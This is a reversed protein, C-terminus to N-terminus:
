ERLEYREGIERECLVFYVHGRLYLKKKELVSCLMCGFELGFEVEGSM